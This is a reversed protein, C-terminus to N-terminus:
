PSAIVKFLLARNGLGSAIAHLRKLFSRMEIEVEGRSSGCCEDGIKEDEDSGSIVDMRKLVYLVFVDVPLILMGACPTQAELAM